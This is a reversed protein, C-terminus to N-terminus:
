IRSPGGNEVNENIAEMLDQFILTNAPEFFRSKHSYTLGDPWLKMQIEQKQRIGSERWTKAIDIV